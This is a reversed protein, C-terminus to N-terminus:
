TCVCYCTSKVVTSFLSWLFWLIYPHWHCLLLYVLISKRMLTSFLGVSGEGYMCTLLQLLYRLLGPKCSSIYPHNHLIIRPAAIFFDLSTQTSQQWQYGLIRIIAKVDKRNITLTKKKLFGTHTTVTRGTPSPEAVLYWWQNTLCAQLWPM